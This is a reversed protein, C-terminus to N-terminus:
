ASLAPPLSNIAYSSLYDAIIAELFRSMQERHQQLNREVEACIAMLERVKTVIRAQEALPPVAVMLRSLALQNIKPMAVRNDVKTSQDVFTSSLMYHLLYDRDILPKIPYMDASCVGGFDVSTAKALAPRIKSYLIM